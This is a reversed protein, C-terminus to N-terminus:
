QSGSRWPGLYNRLYNEDGLVGLSGANENLEKVLTKVDTKLIQEKNELNSQSLHMKLNQTMESLKKLNDIYQIKQKIFENQQNLLIQQCADCHKYCSSVAQSVVSSSGSM